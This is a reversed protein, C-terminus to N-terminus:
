ILGPKSPDCHRLGGHHPAHQFSSISSGAPFLQQNRFSMPTSVANRTVAFLPRPDTESLRSETTFDFRKSAVLPRVSIM